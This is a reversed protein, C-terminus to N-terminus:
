WEVSRQRSQRVKACRYEIKSKREALLKNSGLRFMFQVKKGVTDTRSARGLINMFLM